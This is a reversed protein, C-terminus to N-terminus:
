LWDGTSVMNNSVNEGVERAKKVGGTFKLSLLGLTKQWGLARLALVLHPFEGTTGHNPSQVKVALSVPKVGPQPVLIGCAM